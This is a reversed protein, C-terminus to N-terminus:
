IWILHAVLFWILILNWKDNLVDSDGVYWQPQNEIPLIDM